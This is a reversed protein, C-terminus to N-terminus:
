TMCRASVEKCPVARDEGRSDRATGAPFSKAHEPESGSKRKAPLSPPSAASTRPASARWPWRPTQQANEGEMHPAPATGNTCHTYITSDVACNGAM